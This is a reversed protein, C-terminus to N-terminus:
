GSTAGAGATEKSPLTLGWQLGHVAASLASYGATEKSPLTLGWQLWAKETRERALEENGQESSHPGM